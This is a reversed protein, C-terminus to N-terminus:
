AVEGWVKDVHSRRRGTRRAAEEATVGLEKLEALTERLGVANHTEQRGLRIVVERFRTSDRFGDLAKVRRMHSECISHRYAARMCNTVVCRIGARDPVANPDDLTSEDWAMPPAYDKRYARWRVTESDGRTMGLRRYVEDIKVLTSTMLRDAKMYRPIVEDTVDLETALTRISHGMYQLAQLRRQAGFAPRYSEQSLASSPTVALLAKATHRYIWAVPKCGNRPNGEMLRRVQSEQVCGAARSIQSYTAGAEMLRHVHNRVETADVRNTEGRQRKLRGQKEYRLQAKACPECKCRHRRAYGYTGHTTRAPRTM